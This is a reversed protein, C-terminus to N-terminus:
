IYIKRILDLIYLYRYNERTLKKNSPFGTKSILGRDITSLTRFRYTPTYVYSPDLYIYIPYSSGAQHLIHILPFNLINIFSLPALFLDQWIILVQM